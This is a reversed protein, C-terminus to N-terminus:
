LIETIAVFFCVAKLLFRQAKQAEKRSEQLDQLGTKTKVDMFGKM